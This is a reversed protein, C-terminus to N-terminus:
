TTICTQQETELIEADTLARKILTVQLSDIARPTRLIVEETVGAKALSQGLETLLHVHSVIDFCHTRWGIRWCDVTYGQWSQENFGRRHKPNAWAASSLDYYVEVELTGGVKLWELCTTMCRAIDDMQEFVHVALITDFTNRGLRIRGFRWSQQYSDFPFPQSLDFVLDAGTSADSDINFHDFRWNQGAGINLKGPPTVDHKAARSVLPNRAEYDEMMRKLDVMWDRQRFLAYGREAIAERKHSDACYEVCLDALEDQPAGVISQRMDEEIITDDNLESVVTVRNALLYSARAESFLHVGDYFPMELVIKSRAIYEDRQEPTWFGDKTWVVKL